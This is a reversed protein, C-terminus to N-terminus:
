QYIAHDGVDLFVADSNSFEFVIRYRRDVSFSWLHAIRGHLKHTDLRPDFPNERFTLERKEARSKILPALKKYSKAFRPHYRIQM